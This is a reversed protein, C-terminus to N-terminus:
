GASVRFAQFYNKRLKGVLSQIPIAARGYNPIQRPKSRHCPLLHCLTKAPQEAGGTVGTTLKLLPPLSCCDCLPPLNLHDAEQKDYPHCQGAQRPNACFFEGVPSACEIKDRPPLGRARSRQELSRRVFITGSPLRLLDGLAAPPRSIRQGSTRGHIAREAVGVFTLKATIEVLDVIVTAAVVQAIAATRLATRILLHRAHMLSQYIATNEQM